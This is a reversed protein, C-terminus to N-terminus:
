FSFGFSFHVHFRSDAAFLPGPNYAADLRIPGVPTYFRLGAGPGYGVEGDFSFSDVSVQGADVFLAGYLVDYIQRRWEIHGELATLGGMGKGFADTPTLEDQGFCRVGLAGGLFYRQQIPVVDGDFAYRTAVSAGVALVGWDELDFHYTARADLELYSLSAGLPRVSVLTGAEALLGKTPLFRDDRMDRRFRVYPGATRKFGEIEGREDEPIEAAINTGEEIRFVYGGWLRHHRDLLREFGLESDFGTYDYFREQRQIAGLTVWLRNGQGLIWPDEIQIEGAHSKLSAAASARLVRGVGFLNFDKYRVRGYLLDWSGWGVEADLRKTDAEGVTVDVNAWGPGDPEMNAQVSTFLRSRYLDAIGAELQNRRILDGQKTEFRDRMFGTRTQNNGHFRIEKLRTPEGADVDLRIRATATEDDVEATADVKAFALGEDRLKRRIRVALRYSLHVTYPGGVGDNGELVSRDAGEITVADVTYRRGEKVRVVIDAETHEANWVIRPDEVEVRLFGEELYASEVASGASAVEQPDLVPPGLDLFGSGKFDFLKELDEVPLSEVGEFRVKGFRALPGEEVDFVLDSGKIEFTVQADTYGQERLSTQMAYAADDADAPRRDNEVFRKLYREAPSILDADDVERNGEIRMDPVSFREEWPLGGQCAALLFLAPLLVATRM